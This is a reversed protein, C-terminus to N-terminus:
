MIVTLHAITDRLEKVLANLRDSEKGVLQVDMQTKCWQDVDEVDHFLVTFFPRHNEDYLTWDHCVASDVYDSVYEGYSINALTMGDVSKVIQLEVLDDDDGRVESQLPVISAPFELTAEDLIDDAVCGFIKETIERHAMVHDTTTM